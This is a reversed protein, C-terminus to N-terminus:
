AGLVTAAIHIDPTYMVPMAVANATTSFSVPNSKKEMTVFIGPEQQAVIGPNEEGALEYQEATVGYQTEAWESRNPPIMAWLGEPTTRMYKDDNWVQADYAFVPPLSWRARVANVDAPSLTTSPTSGSPTNYFAARYELNSALVAIARESTVVMEPRPAGISKLYRLWAMEDSLPTATPQDWMVAATPRNASPVQWNVDLGVGPLDVVGTALMQGNAIEMATKVSEFHRDLDDYLKDVFDQEDQGRAANQLIIALEDMELTQGVPPLMGENIVREAQRKALVTPTGYARFKAANVRRKSRETKFKVGNIKRERFVTNTLFYDAPTTLGRVYANIDEASVNRLLVDLTSM